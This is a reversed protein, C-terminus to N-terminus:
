SSSLFKILNFDRLHSSEKIGPSNTSTKYYTVLSSSKRQCFNKWRSHYCATQQQTKFRKENLVRTHTLIRWPGDPTIHARKRTLHAVSNKLFTRLGTYYTHTHTHPPAKWFIGSNYSQGILRSPSDVFRLTKSKVCM